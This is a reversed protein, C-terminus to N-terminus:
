AASMCRRAFNLRVFDSISIIKLQLGDPLDNEGMERRKEERRRSATISYIVEAGERREMAEGKVV